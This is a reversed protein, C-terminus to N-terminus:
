RHALVSLDDVETFGAVHEPIDGLIEDRWVIWAHAAFRANQRRVGVRVVSGRIGHADLLAQLAVARVLCFPRFIGHEAARSVALALARARAVDGTGASPDSAERKVLTGTPARRVRWQAQLLAVQARVLDRWESWGLSGLRRIKRLAPASM